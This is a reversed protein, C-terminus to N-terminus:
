ADVGSKRPDPLQDCRAEEPTEVDFFAEYQRRYSEWGTVADMIDRRIVHLDESFVDLRKLLALFRALEKMTDKETPTLYM